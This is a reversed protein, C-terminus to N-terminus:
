VLVDHEQWSYSGLLFLYQALESYSSYSSTLINLQEQTKMTIGPLGAEALREFNGNSVDIISVRDSNM